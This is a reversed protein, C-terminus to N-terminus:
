KDVIIKPVVPGCGKRVADPFEGRKKIVFQGGKNMIFMGFLSDKIMIGTMKTKHIFAHACRTREQVFQPRMKRRFRLLAREAAALSTQKMNGTGLVRPLYKLFATFLCKGIGRVAYCRGTGTAQHLKLFSQRPLPLLNLNHM